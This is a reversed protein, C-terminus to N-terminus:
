HRTIDNYYNYATRESCGMQQALYKVPSAGKPTLFLIMRAENIKEERIKSWAERGIKPNRNM